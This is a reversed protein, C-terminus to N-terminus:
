KVWGLRLKGSIDVDGSLESDKMKGNLRKAFKKKVESVKLDLRSLEEQIYKELNDKEEGTVNDLRAIAQSMSEIWMNIEELARVLENCARYYDGSRKVGNEGM